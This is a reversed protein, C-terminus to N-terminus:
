KYLAPFLEKSDLIITVPGDNQIHVQMYAGFEGSEVIIDNSKLESIFEEYLRNAADPLLAKSLSPKKGKKLDAFLTFQSVVLVAGNVEPLSYAFRGSDDSFLKIKLLKDIMPALFGSHDGQEFGVLL